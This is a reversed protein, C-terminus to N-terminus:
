QESREAAQLGKTKAPPNRQNDDRSRVPNTLCIVSRRDRGLVEMAWVRWQAELM